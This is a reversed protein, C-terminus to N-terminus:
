TSQDSRTMFLPSALRGKVTKTLPKGDIDSLRISRSSPSQKIPTTTHANHNTHNTTRPYQNCSM